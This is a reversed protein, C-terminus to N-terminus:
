PLCQASLINGTKVFEGERRVSSCTNFHHFVGGASGAIMFGLAAADGGDILIGEFRGGPQEAGDAVDGAEAEEGQEGLAFGADGFEGFGFFFAERGDGLTEADQAAFVEDGAAAFAFVNEIGQGILMNKIQDEVREGV